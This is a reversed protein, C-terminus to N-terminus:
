KYVITLDAASTGSTTICLGVGFYLNYLLSVQATTTITGIITGTCTTNNYIIATSGTGATAVIISMLYGSSTKIATSANTIINNYSPDPLATKVYGNADTKIPIVNSTGDQIGTMVAGVTNSLYLIIAMVFLFRKM